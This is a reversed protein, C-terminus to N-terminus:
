RCRRACRSPRAATPRRPSCRSSPPGPATSGTTATPPSGPGQRRGQVDPGARQGRGPRVRQAVGGPAPRAPVRLPHPAHGAAQRPQPRRVAGPRRRRGRTSRRAGLLVPLGHGARHRAARDDGPRRSGPLRHPVGTGARAPRGAPRLAGGRDRPAGSWGPVDLRPHPWVTRVRGASASALATYEVPWEAAVALRGTKRRCLGDWPRPGHRIPRRAQMVRTPSGGERARSPSRYGVRADRRRNDM